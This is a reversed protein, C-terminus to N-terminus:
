YLCRKREKYKQLLQKARPLIRTPNEKEYKVANNQIKSALNAQRITQHKENFLTTTLYHRANTEAVYKKM